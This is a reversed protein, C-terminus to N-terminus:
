NYNLLYMEEVVTFSDHTAKKNEDSLHTKDVVLIDTALVMKSPGNGNLRKLLSSQQLPLIKMKSM